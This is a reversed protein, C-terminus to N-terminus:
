YLNGVKNLDSLQVCKSASVVDKVREWSRRNWTVRTDVFKLSLFLIVNDEVEAEDGGVFM